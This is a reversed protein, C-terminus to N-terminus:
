MLAKWVLFHILISALIISSFYPLKTLNSFKPGTNLLCTSCCVFVSHRGMCRRICLQYVCSYIWSVAQMVARGGSWILPLIAIKTWIVKIQVHACDGFQTIMTGKWATFRLCLSYISQVSKKCGTLLDRYNNPFHVAM